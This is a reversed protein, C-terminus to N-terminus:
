NRIVIGLANAVARPSADSYKNVIDFNNSENKLVMTSSGGGDLNIAEKVELGRMVAALEDYTMGVSHASQRGDVLVLYVVNDRTYGILTRPHKETDNFIRVKGDVVLRVSGGVLDRFENYNAVPVDAFTGIQPKGDKKVSFYTIGNNKITSKVMTGNVFVPGWPEGAIPEWNFFDANTAALVTEGAGNRAEAMTKVAQLGLITKNNPMLTSLTIKPANLDAKLVFISLPQKARNEFRIASYEVGNYLEKYTHSIVNAVLGSRYIIGAVADSYYVPAAITVPATYFTDLAGTEPVYATTYEISTEKKYVPLGTKLENKAIRLQHLKSDTGTYSLKVVAEDKYGTSWDIYPERGYVFGLQKVPRNKLSSIYNDGYVRTNVIVGSSKGDKDHTLIEFTYNGEPLDEILTKVTDKPNASLDVTLVKSRKNWFIECKNITERNVWFSLKARNHGAYAVAKQAYQPLENVNETIVEKKDCAILPISFCFLYFGKKIFSIM